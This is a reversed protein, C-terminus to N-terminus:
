LEGSVETHKDSASVAPRCFPLGAQKLPNIFALYAVFFGIERDSTAIV